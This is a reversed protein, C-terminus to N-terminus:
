LIKIWIRGNVEVNGTGWTEYDPIASVTGIMRDPYQMVEKRTMKSVTGNPGSCVPDGPKYSNRDEYPYVLARGSVALPTKSTETEGIAFGFTDSVVNAGPMLRETALSLTDDGNEVVVRGVEIEEKTERYEAYDNWVAGYVAGAQITASGTLTTSSGTHNAIFYFTGSKATVTDWTTSTNYFHIGETAGDALDATYISNVQCIDSNACNLGYSTTDSHYNYAGNRLTLGGTLTGGSLPLYSHTHSTIAGTLKAEIEAKTIDSNKQANTPAHTSQSHTYATNGYDGRFATSSTTGLTLHTGHSAAAAGINAPTITAWTNDNRLFRANNASETTPVHNGHSAAAAGINAPTVTAWTNDNRLFKANNATQTAPVHNGHSAAAYASHTHSTIDGTLKAEIEAKTIDSNKQANTPAHTSQSHTYATNGYDGRFATSSTTGLTLHTGHSAAAYASSDTFAASGLGKVSVNYATANSPTVKIQGNADGAAITYTTNTNPNAPMTLTITSASTIHGNGDYQVYPIKFTGGFSLIRQSGSDGFNGATISNAHNITLTKGSSQNLTFNGSTGTGIKIGSGGQLTITANSPSPAGQVFSWDLSGRLEDAQIYSGVSDEAGLYVHGKPGGDDEPARMQNGNFFIDVVLPENKYSGHEIIYNACKDTTSPTEFYTNVYHINQVDTGVWETNIGDADTARTALGDFKTATITNTSPNLYVGSDYYATTELATSANQNKPTLLLPYNGDDSVQTQRVRYDPVTISYLEQGMPSNFTITKDTISVEGIHSLAAMDALLIGVPHDGDNVNMPIIIHMPISYPINDEAFITTTTSWVLGTDDTDAGLFGAPITTFESFNFLIGGSDGLSMMLSVPLGSFLWMMTTYIWVPANKDGSNIYGMSLLLNGQMDSGGDLVFEERSSSDEFLTSVNDVMLVNNLLTCRITTWESLSWEKEPLDPGLNNVVEISYTYKNNIILNPFPKSHATSFIIYFINGNQEVYTPLTIDFNGDARPVMVADIDSDTTGWGTGDSSQAEIFRYIHTGSGSNTICNWRNQNEDYIM